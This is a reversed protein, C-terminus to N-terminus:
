NREMYILALDRPTLSAGDISLGLDLVHVVKIASGEAECLCKYDRDVPEPDAAVPLNIKSYFQEKKM